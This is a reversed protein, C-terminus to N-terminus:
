MEPLVMARTTIAGPFITFMTVLQDGASVDGRRHSVPPRSGAGSVRVSTLLPGGCTPLTRSLPM